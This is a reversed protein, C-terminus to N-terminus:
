RTQRQAETFKRKLTFKFATEPHFIICDLECNPSPLSHGNYPPLRYHSQDCGGIIRDYSKLGVALGAHDEWKRIIDYNM